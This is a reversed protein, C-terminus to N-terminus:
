NYWYNFFCFIGLFIGVFVVMIQCKDGFGVIEVCKLGELVMIWNLVFVINLGVYDWNIILDFFIDYEIVIKEICEFFENKFEEFNEVKDNKFSFLFQSLDFIFFMLLIQECFKNYLICMIYQLNM